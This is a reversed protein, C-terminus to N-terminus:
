GNGVNLVLLFYLESSTLSWELEQLCAKDKVGITYCEKSRSVEAVRRMRIRSKELSEYPNKRCNNRQGSDEKCGPDALSMMTGNFMASRLGGVTAVLHIVLHGNRLFFNKSWDEGDNGVVRFLLWSHSISHWLLCTYVAPTQGSIPGPAFGM